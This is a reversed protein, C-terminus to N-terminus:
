ITIQRNTTNPTTYLYLLFSLVWPYPCCHPSKPPRLPQTSFSSAMSSVHQHFSFFFSFDPLLFHFFFSLSFHSGPHHVQPLDIYKRVEKIGTLKQLLLNFFFFLQQSPTSFNSFSHCMKRYEKQFSLPFSDIREVYRQEINYVPIVPLDDKGKNSLLEKGQSCPFQLPCVKACPGLGICLKM